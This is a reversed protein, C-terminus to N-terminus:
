VDLRGDSSYKQQIHKAWCRATAIAASNSSFSSLCFLLIGEQDRRTKYGQAKAKCSSKLIEACTQQHLEQEGQCIGEDDAVAPHSQHALM